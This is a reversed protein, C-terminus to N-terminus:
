IFSDNSAGFVSLHYNLKIQEAQPNYYEGNKTGFTPQDLNIIKSKLQM